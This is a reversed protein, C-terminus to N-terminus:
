DISFSVIIVDRIGSGSPNQPKHKVRGDMIIVTGPEIKITQKVNQTDLYRLNGDIIGDDIRTYMFVTILNDNNDNECHWSLGSYVPKTENYLDYRIIDMFWETENHKHNKLHLFGSAIDKIFLILDNYDNVSHSYVIHKRENKKNKSCILNMTNPDLLYTNRYVKTTNITNLEFSSMMKHLKM